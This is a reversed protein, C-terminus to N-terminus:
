ALISQLNSEGAYLLHILLLWYSALRRDLLCHASKMSRILKPCLNALALRDM